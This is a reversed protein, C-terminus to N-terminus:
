SPENFKKITTYGGCYLWAVADEIMEDDVIHKDKWDSCYVKGEALKEWIDEENYGYEIRDQYYTTIMHEGNHHFSAVGGDSMYVDAENETDFIVKAKM